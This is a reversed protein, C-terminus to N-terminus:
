SAKRRRLMWAMGLLGAGFIVLSGPEPLAPGSLNAVLDAPSGNSEVYTLQFPTNMGGTLWGSTTVYSTPGADTLIATNSAGEYFSAGDDHGISLYLTPGTYMGSFLLYSNYTEGELSMTTALFNTETTGNGMFNSINAMSFGFDGFTNLTANQGNNPANNLFNINGTYTFTAFPTSTPENSLTAYKTVGNGNWVTVSYSNGNVFQSLNASPMAGAQAAGIGFALAASVSILTPWPKM